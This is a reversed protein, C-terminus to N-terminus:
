KRVKFQKGNLQVIYIGAPLTDWKGVRRGSLDYVPATQLRSDDSSLEDISTTSSFGVSLHEANSDVLRADTIVAGAPLGNLLLSEGPALTNGTPSYVVLRVGGNVSRMSVTFRSRLDQAMQLQGQNVGHITLQLAAVEDANALTLSSGNQLILNRTDAEVKNYSRAGSSEPEDYDLIYNVSGVIDSVNIYSDSNANATTYNFVQGSPKSDNLAYYVVSQLDAVDVTQDANVDGDKWDIRFIYTIYSYYPMEHTYAVLEGKPAKFVYGKYADWLNQNNKQLAGESTDSISNGNKYLRYLYNFSLNYDGYEHRYIQLTNSELSIPLGPTFDTVVEDILEDPVVVKKTKWDVFQYGRYMRSNNLKENSTKQSYATLWNYSVNLSTLNPLKSIFPYLDGKLHNGEMNLTEIITNESDLLTDVEAEIVNHSLNLTKLKSLGFVSKPLQGALGQNTLDIATIYFLEDDDPDVETTVGQWKGISHRQNSLDWPNTWSAGNLKEYLQEMVAFDADNLMDESEFARITKFQNWINTAQYIDVQGEPVELVCNTRYGTYSRWLDGVWTSSTSIMPPTGAHVRLLELSDCGIFYDFYSNNSYNQNRGLYAEKLQTCGAAFRSGVSTVNKPVRIESLQTNFFAYSGITTLSNPLRIENLGSEYFAYSGIEKLATPLTMTQLATTGYFTYNPIKTMDAPLSVTALSKCNYFVEQSFSNITKTIAVGTLGSGCFAEEGLSTVTEPIILNCSMAKTNKFAYSGISTLAAPLATLVLSECDQFVGNPIVTIQDNLAIAPLLKCGYFASAGLSTIGDHMAVSTLKVCNYFTNSPISSIGTPINASELLSCASFVSSGMSTISNPLMVTTLGTNSFASNGITTLTTQNLNEVTALTQCNSFASYGIQTTGDALTVSELSSCYYAVYDPVQKINAPFTLQKLAYCYAFAYTGLSSLSQPLTVEEITECRYFANYGISELGESFTLSPIQRCYYFASGGITKCSAPIAIPSALKRDDYFASEGIYEIQAPINIALLKDCSNFASSGITTIADSLTVQTIGDCDSFASNGIYTINDPISLITLGDCDNFTYEEIRTMGDPITLTKLATNGSFAYKGITTVDAPIDAKELKSDSNFACEGISTLSAPMEVQTLKSNSAVAYNGMVTAANPLLLQKLNPMNYFMYQGIVDNETPWHASSSYKTAKNTSTDFSYRYYDEGGVVIRANTLDLVELYPMLEHIQNIDTGNIPGTVALRLTNGAVEAPVKTPLQGGETTVVYFETTSGIAIIHYKKTYSNTKYTDVMDPHVYIIMANPLSNYSRQFPFNVGPITMKEMKSCGNFLYSDSAFGNTALGTGFTIERLNSCYYFAESGITQVSNPLTVTQLNRCYYFCYDPIATIVSAEDFEVSRLSDCSNFAYNGMSAIGKPLTLTRLSDINSFAYRGIVLGSVEPDINVATVHYNNQFASEGISKVNKGINITELSYSGTFFSNPINEGNYTITKIDTCYYFVNSGLSEIDFPITITELGCDRFCYNKIVRLNPATSFDISKLAYCYAFSYAGLTDLKANLTVSELKNCSSFANSSNGQQGGVCTINQGFVVSVIDYRNNLYGAIYKVEHTNGKSDTVQDAIIIHGAKTEDNAYSSIGTLTAASTANEYHYTLRNGNADTVTVDGYQPEEYLYIYRLTHDAGIKFKVTGDATVKLLTRNYTSNWTDAELGELPTVAKYTEVALYQGATLGSIAYTRENSSSIGSYYTMQFSNNINDDPTLLRGNNIVYSGFKLQYLGPAVEDGLTLAGSSYWNIYKEYWLLELTPEAVAKATVVPSTTYGDAEAWFSLTSGNAITFGNEYLTAEGEGIRYYITCEPNGELDYQDASLSVTWEDGDQYKDSIMPANLTQIVGNVYQEGIESSGASNTAYAYIYGIGTVTLEISGDTTSSYANSGIEPAEDGVETTYYLTTAGAPKVLEYTRYAGNVTTLNFFPQDPVREGLADINELGVGAAVKFKVVGETTVHFCYAKWPDVGNDESNWSDMELGEIGTVLPPAGSSIIRRRRDSRKMRSHFGDPNEKEVQEGTNVFVMLVQGPTLGSFAYTREEASVLGYSTLKFNENINENPTSLHESILNGDEDMIWYFGDAPGDDHLTLPIDEEVVFNSSFGDLWEMTYWVPASATATTVPSDSFDPHSAYFSITSGSALQVNDKESYVQYDGGNISYYVTVQLEQDNVNQYTNFHINYIGMENYWYDFQPVNLTATTTQGWASTGILVMIGLLMSRLLEKKM